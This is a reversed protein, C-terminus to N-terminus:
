ACEFVADDPVLLAVHASRPVQLTQELQRWPGRTSSLEYIRDSEGGKEVATEDGGVILISNGFSNERQVTAMNTLPMPLDPGRSWRYKARHPQDLDLIETSKQVTEGDWGGAVIVAEQGSEPDKIVGCAAYRRGVRLHPGFSWTSSRTDYFHTLESYRSSNSRRGGILMFTTENLAVVCHGFVSTPMNSRPDEKIWNDQDESFSELSELRGETGLGGFIHYGHDNNFLAAAGGREITLNKFPRWQGQSTLAYCESSITSCHSACGGCVVVPLNLVTGTVVGYYKHPYDDVFARCRSNTRLDIIETSAISGGEVESFGTTVLLKTFTSSLSNCKEFPNGVSGDECACSSLHNL